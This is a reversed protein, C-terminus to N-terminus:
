ASTPFTGQRKADEVFEAIAHVHGLASNTRIAEAFSPQQGTRQYTAVGGIVRALSNDAVEFVETTENQANRETVRSTFRPIGPVPDFEVSLSRGDELFAESYRTITKGPDRHILIGSGDMQYPGLGQALRLLVGDKGKVVTYNGTSEPIGGVENLYHNSVISTRNDKLGALNHAVAVMHPMEIGYAGLEPDMFRGAKVDPVRNKLFVTDVQAVNTDGILRKALQVGTSANYNENVFVDPYSLRDQRFLEKLRTEEEPSSVIPKELLWTYDTGKGGQSEIAELAQDVGNVHHGSATVVDVVALNDLPVQEMDSVLSLRGAEHAAQMAPSLNEPSLRQPNLDYAVINYDQNLWHPAHLVQGAKGFGVSLVDQRIETM